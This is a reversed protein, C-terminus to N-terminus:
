QSKLKIHFNKLEKKYLLIVIAVAVLFAFSSFLINTRWVGRWGVVYLFMIGLVKYFRKKINILKRKSLLMICIVTSISYGLVTGIAAGEIGWWPIMLFNFGINGIAGIFLCFMAPTTKKIILFQNGAIQFLMQILPAMFLYPAVIAGDIYESEFLIRFGLESFAFIGMGAIFAVSGLYEFINSTMEVQDEDKMTSFAFFQWGGAFGIYILQSLQGWKAGLAYIGNYEMGLMKSIMLRDSSNFVWYILFNPLLPLAIKLMQNIYAFNVKKISFWKRNFFAFAIETILNACVTSLPLAFVYYGKILLPIAISYSTLSTLLNTALYVTRKNEMRTPASVISNTAGCLISLATLVILGQYESNGFIIEASKKRFMLLVTFIVLSIILTFFLASSCISEKYKKEEKEFFMRFMADYMGMIAVAQGFSLLINSLDNLGFYFTDPMLRTVLPLMIFPIIKGIVGGLGYVIFNELFLKVRNM